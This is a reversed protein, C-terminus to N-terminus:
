INTTHEKYRAIAEKIDDISLNNTNAILKYAVELRDELTYPTPAIAINTTNTGGTGMPVGEIRNILYQIMGSDGKKALDIARRLILKYNQVKSKPDKSKLARELANTLSFKKKPRGNPNHVVGKQFLWPKNGTSNTIKNEM